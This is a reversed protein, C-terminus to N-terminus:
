TAALRAADALVAGAAARGPLAAVGGFPATGAGSIYLRDIPTRHSALARTPRRPGAQDPTLDLHMPHAGPWRLERAMQEPTRVSVGRISDRFGPARVEVQAILDEALRKADARWGKRVEFPAAPCALYVTHQGPPALSDDLASTTFAYAPAPTHLRRDEAAAFAAELNALTDVYSQLGNWDGSRAGRYAPLRDTAVHVVAQVANSRHTARLRRAVRGSLPPHALELLATRPNIATVVVDAAIREGSELAVGRARGGCVDIRAVPSDCRLEGGLSALRRVLAATLAGSGGVGHWQGIRHYVAQWYVFRAGRPTQPGASAHAAFAAVPGRTLDSGLRDELVRGYSALLDTAIRRPQRAFARIAAPADRAAARVGPAGGGAGMWAILPDLLPVAVDMFRRYAKAERPDVEAISAVTREISRHFRVIRGDAFVAVAFPDMERYELGVDGLQLEAAVPTANIINHAVSHTDFRHGPVTEETRSGGGPRASQELVLVDLGAQALYCACVLGNHGAGVVVAKM